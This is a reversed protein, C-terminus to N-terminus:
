KAIGELLYQYRDIQQGTAARMDQGNQYSLEWDAVWDIAMDISLVPRWGLKVRAKSTDLRLVAAEHPQPLTIPQIVIPSSLKENMKRVIDLVSISDSEGPGFNWSEAYLPGTNVLREALQMYGNLPELVHQWPRVSGPNRLVLPQHTKISRFFDPILRDPSWDGGGIVNGARATGIAVRHDPYCDPPFFSNRYSSTIIEAAAKSSSYPDYGGLADTERYGWDWDRNEYCKDTTVVVVARVTPAQRVAELINATGMINTQLTEIPNAYSYRVLPQAALHFVIEPDFNRMESKLLELDNIDATINRIGDSIKAVEFLNPSTLPALSYGAVIADLKKLWLTLWSGKFGTHGTVFVRRGNWFGLGMVKNEM